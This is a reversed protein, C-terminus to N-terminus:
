IRYQIYTKGFCFFGFHKKEFKIFQKNTNYVYFNSDDDILSQIFSSRTSHFFPNGEENAYYLSAGTSGSCSINKCNWVIAQEPSNLPTTNAAVIPM